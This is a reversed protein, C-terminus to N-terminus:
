TGRGTGFVVYEFIRNLTASNTHTVTFEQKGRGSVYMSGTALETAAVANTPMWLIVSDTGVRADTVVTSTTNTDIEFSSANNTRGDLIGNAVDAILRRHEEANRSVVPARLAM